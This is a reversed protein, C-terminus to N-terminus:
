YFMGEAYTYAQWQEDEEYGDYKVKHYGVLRDVNLAQIITGTSQTSKKGPAAIFQRVTDGWEYAWGEFWFQVLIETTKSSLSDVYTEATGESYRGYEPGGEDMVYLNGSFNKGDGFHNTKRVYDARYAFANLSMACLLIMCMISIGIAKTSKKSLKKM